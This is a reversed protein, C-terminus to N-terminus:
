AHDEDEQHAGPVPDKRSIAEIALPASAGAVFDGVPSRPDAVVEAYLASTVLRIAVSALYPGLTAEGPMRWPWGKVRRIARTLEVGEVCIAGVLGYGM